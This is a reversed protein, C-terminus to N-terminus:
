EGKQENLVDECFKIVDEDSFNSKANNYMICVLQINDETYGRSNDIRDITITNPNWRVKGEANSTELKRGTKKCKGEQSKLLDDLFTRSITFDMGKKKARHKAGNFITTLAYKLSKKRRRRGYDNYYHRRCEDSCLKSSPVQYIYTQGCWDCERQRPTYVRNSYNRMIDEMIIKNTTNYCLTYNFDVRQNFYDRGGDLEEQGEWEELAEEMKIDKILARM